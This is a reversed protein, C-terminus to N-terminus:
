GSVLQCTFGYALNQWGQPRKQDEVYPRNAPQPQALRGAKVGGVKLSRSKNTTTSVIRGAKAARAKLSSTIRQNHQMSMGGAKVNTKIRM